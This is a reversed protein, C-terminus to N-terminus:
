HIFLYIKSTSKNPAQLTSSLVHKVVDWFWWYCVKRIATQVSAM